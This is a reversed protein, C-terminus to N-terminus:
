LLPELLMPVVCLEFHMNRFEVAVCAHRVVFLGLQVYDAVVVRGGVVDVHADDVGDGFGSSRSVCCWVCVVGSFTSFLVFSAAVWMWVENWDGDFGVAAKALISELEQACGCRCFWLLACLCECRYVVVKTGSELVGVGFGDQRCVWAGLSM